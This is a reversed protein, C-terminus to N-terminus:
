VITAGGTADRRKVSVQEREAGEERNGDALRCTQRAVRADVASRKKQGVRAHSFFSESREAEAAEVAGVRDLGFLVGLWPRASARAGVDGARCAWLRGVASLCRLCVFSSALLLFFYVSERDATMPMMTPMTPMMMTRSAFRRRSFNKSGRKKWVGKQRKKKVAASDGDDGRGFGRLSFWFFFFVGEGCRGFLGDGEDGVGVGHRPRSFSFRFFVDRCYLFCFSFPHSFLTAWHGCTEDGRAVALDCLRTAFFFFDGEGGTLSSLLYRCAGGVLKTPVRWFRAGDLGAAAGCVCARRCLVVGTLFRLSGPYGLFDWMFGFLM